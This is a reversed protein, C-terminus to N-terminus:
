ANGPKGNTERWKKPSCGVLKVFQTHFNSRDSFGCMEGVLNTSAQKDELLMKKADNIRLETRWNRFDQKMAVNFYLQLLEKTTGLEAAIEERTRDYERYKKEAIWEKINRSITRFEKDRQKRDLAPEQDKLRQTKPPFLDQGSLTRHAFADLVMKHSGLFSIFNASFYLIFLIYWAIYVKVFVNPLVMYVLLFIDTLMAIIYCFRLWRIKHDEDEDYYSSLAKLSKRYASDFKVIYYISQTIFLLLTFVLALIFHLREQEGLFAVLLAISSAVILFANIIFTNSPIISDDLINIMSYSIAMTSFSATILMTLSSFKEYEWVAPYEYLSFAMMFGCVLFSVAITVKANNLRKAYETRPIKIILLIFALMCSAACALWQITRIDTFDTLFDM